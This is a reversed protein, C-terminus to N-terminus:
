PDPTGGRWVPRRRGRRSRRRARLSFAGARGSDRDHGQGIGCEDDEDAGGPGALGRPGELAVATRLDHGGVVQTVDDPGAGAVEIGGRIREVEQLADDGGAEGPPEGGDDVGEAEVGLAPDGPAIRCMGGPQRRDGYQEVGRTVLATAPVGAAVPRHRCGDEGLLDAAGGGDAGGEVGLPPVLDLDDRPGRVGV